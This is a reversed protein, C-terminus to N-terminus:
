GRAQGSSGEEKRDYSGGLLLFIRPDLGLIVDM